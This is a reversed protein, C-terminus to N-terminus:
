AAAPLTVESAGATDLAAHATRLAGRLEEASDGRLPSGRGSLLLATMAAGQVQIPREDRLRLVLPRLDDAAERIAAHKRRTRMGYAGLNPGRADGLADVLGKALGARGRDSSLQAARLNLDVSTDPDRGRALQEDLRRRRLRTRIRAVLGARMPDRSTPDTHFQPVPYIGNPM